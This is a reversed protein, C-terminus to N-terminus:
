QTEICDLCDAIAITEEASKGILEITGWIVMKLESGFDTIPNCGVFRSVFWKHLIIPADLNM